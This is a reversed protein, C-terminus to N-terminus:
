RYGIYCVAPHPTIFTHGEDVWVTRNVMQRAGLQVGNCVGYATAVFPLEAKLLLLMGAAGALDAFCLIFRPALKWDILIGTALSMVGYALGGPVLVELAVNVGGGRAERVITALNFLVGTQLSTSM